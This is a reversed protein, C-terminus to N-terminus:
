AARQRALHGRVVSLYDNYSNRRQIVTNNQHIRRRLVVEPLHVTKMDTLKARSHWDLWEGVKLQENFLGIRKFADMKIVVAGAVIGDNTEPVAQVEASADLFQETRGSAMQLSPDNAFQDLLQSLRSEPWLDDADLFALFTGRALQIGTNRAAGIGGHERRICRVFPFQSAVEASRDTSGDDVVIAEIRPHQQAAVSALAEAIFQECNLVPIVVSILESHINM